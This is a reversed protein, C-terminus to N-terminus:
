LETVSVYFGGVAYLPAHFRWEINSQEMRM